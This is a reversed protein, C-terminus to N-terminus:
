GSGPDTISKEHFSRLPIQTETGKKSYNNKLADIKAQHAQILQQSDKLQKTLMDQPIPVTNSCVISGLEAQYSSAIASTQIYKHDSNLQNLAAM